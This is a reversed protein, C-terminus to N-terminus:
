KATGDREGALVFQRVLRFFRRDVTRNHGLVDAFPVPVIDLGQAAMMVGTKGSHVQDVAAAGMRTALVRDFMSPSGGRQVHGLVTVRAEVHTRQELEEALRTGIGRTSLRPHGFQDVETAVASSALGEVIAGEAVVVISFSRARMRHQVHEIVKEISIPEEPIIILDAGGGIGGTTALWGADRGMVEVVMIRRHAEATTHLRDLAEGVIAVASDFGICYDTHPVDNDITKPVGVVAFGRESLKASVSLTDDGGITVLAEIERRRLNEEVQRMEDEDRAPNTRSSGLITGGLHLIGGIEDESLLHGNGEGLLGAWGERFGYVEDGRMWARYAIARIAANLGPCDGGGTLVGIRM